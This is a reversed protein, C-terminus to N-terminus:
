NEESSDKLYQIMEQLTANFEDISEKYIFIKHREYTKKTPDEEFIKKSETITLYYNNKSKEKTHDQNSEYHNKGGSNFEKIDFFYTRKGVKIKKEFVSKSVKKNFNINDM